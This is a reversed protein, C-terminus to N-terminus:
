QMKAVDWHEVIQNGKVRFMDAWTTTYDEGKSNKYHRVFFLSVMDRDGLISVLDPITDPVATPKAGIAKFYAKVGERGTVANPNHQHYEPALYKDAAELHHATLFERWMDYVLKKNAQEQPTGSKLMEMQQAPTAAVVPEAARAVTAFAFFAIVCALLRMVMIQAEMM